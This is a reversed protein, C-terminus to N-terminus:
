GPLESLIARLVPLLEDEGSSGVFYFSLNELPRVLLYSFFVGDSGSHSYQRIEEAENTRVYWGYGVFLAPAEMIHPTLVIDRVAPYLYSESLIASKWARMDELTSQMGGNGMLNWHEGELDVLENAINAQQRRGRQKGYAFASADRRPFFYGTDNLGLPALIETQLYDEFPRGSVVEIVAAVLSYGLNSYNVEGTKYSRNMERLCYTLLEEKSRSEFDRGCNDPLGATHTLLEHLTIEGLYAHGEVYTDLPAHLNLKNEHALKAAAVATFQKSISGIQHITTTTFPTEQRPNAMGYAQQLLVEGGLELWVAGSFGDDAASGLLESIRTRLEATEATDEVAALTKNVVLSLALSLSLAKLAVLLRCYRIIPTHM